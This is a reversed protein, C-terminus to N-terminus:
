YNNPDVYVVRHSAGLEEGGVKDKCEKDKIRAYKIREVQM